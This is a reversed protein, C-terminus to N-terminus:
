FNANSTVSADLRRLQWIEKERSVNMRYLPEALAVHWMSIWEFQFSGSHARLYVNNFTIASSEYPIFIFFFVLHFFLLSRRFALLSLSLTDSVRQVVKCNSFLNYWIFISLCIYLSMPHQVFLSFLKVTWKHRTVGDNDGDGDDEDVLIRLPM